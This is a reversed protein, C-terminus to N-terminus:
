LKLSQTLTDSQSSILFQATNIPIVQYAIDINEQSLAENREIQAHLSDKKPVIVNVLISDVQEQFVQVELELQKAESCSTLIILMLILLGVLIKTFVFIRNDYFYNNKMERIRITKLYNDIISINEHHTTCIYIYINTINFYIM